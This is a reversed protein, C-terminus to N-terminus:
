KRRTRLSIFLLSSIILLPLAIQLTLLITYSSDAFLQKQWLITLTDTVNSKNIPNNDMFIQVKANVYGGFRIWIWRALFLGTVWLLIEQKKNM